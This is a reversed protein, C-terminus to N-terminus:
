FPPPATFKQKIVAKIATILKSPTNTTIEKEEKEQYTKRLTKRNYTIIQQNIKDRIENLKPESIINTGINKIDINDSIVKKIINNIEVEKPSMNFKYKKISTIAEKSIQKILNADYSNKLRDSYKNYINLTDVISLISDNLECRIPVIILSTHTNIKDKDFLGFCNRNNISNYSEHLTQFEQSDDTTGVLYDNSVVIIQDTSTLVEMERYLKDVDVLPTTFLVCSGETIISRYIAPNPTETTVKYFENRSADYNFTFSGIRNSYFYNGYTNSIGSSKLYNRSVARYVIVPNTVPPSRKILINLQTMYKELIKMWNDHTLIYYITDCTTNFGRELTKTEYKNIFDDRIKKKNDDNDYINSNQILYDYIFSSFSDGIYSNRKGFMTKITNTPDDGGNIGASINNIYISIYYSFPIPRTYDRICRQDNISLSKIYDIQQNIYTQYNNKLNYYEGEFGMIISKNYEYCKFEKRFIYPSIEEIEEKDLNFKPIYLIFNEDIIPEGDDISLIKDCITKNNDYTQKFDQNDTIQLRNKEFCEM